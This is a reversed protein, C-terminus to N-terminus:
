GNAERELAQRLYNIVVDREAELVKDVTPWGTERHYRTQKENDHVLPGYPTANAVIQTLGENAEVLTWNQKLNRSGPSSGRVYPVEIEGSRLKAFFARRQKASKFLQKRRSAPPYEQFKRKVHAAAVKTAARVRRLRGLDSIRKLLADMGELRISDAM